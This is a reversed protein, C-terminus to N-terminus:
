HLYSWDVGAAFGAHRQIRRKAMTIYDPNLDILIANRQLQSAVLGVTGSGAFADLVVGGPPCGALICPQVLAEPMVAFHTGPVPKVPITWVSRANRYEATSVAREKIADADYYYRPNKAFLFVYEHATTPRDKCSEPQPTPKHWIIDRRLIWGDDQLAFAVRWPMGLLNKTALGLKRKMGWIARKDEGHGVQRVLRRDYVGDNLQTKNIRTAVRGPPTTIYADGYNLWLTAEPRLVRRVERFVEVLAAVHEAISTELGIQGAVGYDRLGFYPVSSVCCHVSADPLTKLLDRCDGTLYQVTM